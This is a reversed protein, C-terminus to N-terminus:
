AASPLGLSATAWYWRYRRSRRRSSLAGGVAWISSSIRARVGLQGCTPLHWIAPRRRANHTPMSLYWAPPGSRELQTLSARAKLPEEAVLVAEGLQPVQVVLVGGESVDSTTEVPEHVVGTGVVPEDVVVRRM